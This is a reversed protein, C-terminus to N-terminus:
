DNYHAVEVEPGELEFKVSLHLQDQKQIAPDEPADSNHALTQAFAWVILSWFHFSDELVASHKTKYRIASHYVINM